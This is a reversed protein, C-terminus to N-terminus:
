AISLRDEILALILPKDGVYIFTFHNLDYAVSLIFSLQKIAPKIVSIFLTESFLNKGFVNRRMEASAVVHRLSPM